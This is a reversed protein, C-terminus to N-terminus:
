PTRLRAIAWSRRCRGRTSEVRRWPTDRLRIPEMPMLAPPPEAPKRPRFRVCIESTIPCEALGRKNHAFEIL